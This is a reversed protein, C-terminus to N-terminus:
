CDLRWDSRFKKLTWSSTEMDIQTFEPQRDGRLDEDRFCRAIQYYRDLWCGDAAAQVTTTITAFRLLSRPLGTFTCTIGHAKQHQSPWILTEIDILARHTLTVTSQNPSGTVFWWGVNCEPRRLDLYCYKLRLDDSVNINDQIYFPPNKAKNLLNIESVRVEIKGTRMKDNVEHEARPVVHGKVEIVYENRLQDAVALADKDFEESFVLQVIWKM